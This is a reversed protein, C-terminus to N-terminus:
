VEFLPLGEQEAIRKAQAWTYWATGRPKTEGARRVRIPGVPQGGGVEDKFIVADVSKDYAGYNNM